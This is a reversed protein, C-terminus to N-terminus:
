AVKWTGRGVKEVIGDQEFTKMIAYTYSRIGSSVEGEVEAIKNLVDITRFTKKGRGLKKCIAVIQDRRAGRSPRGTDPDTEVVPISSTQSGTARGELAAQFHEMSEKLQSYEEDVERYERELKRLKEKNLELQKEVAAIESGFKSSM